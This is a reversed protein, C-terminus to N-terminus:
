RLIKYELMKRLTKQNPVLESLSGGPIVAGGSEIYTAWERVSQPDTPNVFHNLTFWLHLAEGYENHNSIKCEMPKAEHIMCGEKEDFFVCQGAHKGTRKIKPRFLTTNFRTMPELWIKKFNEEDLKLFKATKPLQEETFCGSGQQCGENCKACATGLHCHGLEVIKEVPTDKKIM